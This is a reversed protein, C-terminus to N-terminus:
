RPKEASRSAISISKRMITVSSRPYAEIAEVRGTELRCDVVPNLPFVSVSASAGLYGVVAVGTRVVDLSACVLIKGSGRGGGRGDGHDVGEILTMKGLVNGIM